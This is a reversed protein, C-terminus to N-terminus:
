FGCVGQVKGIKLQVKGAFREFKGKVGLTRNSCIKGAIEKVTGKAIRFAGKAQCKTSLKMACEGKQSYHQVQENM